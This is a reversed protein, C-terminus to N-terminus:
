PAAALARRIGLSVNGQGLKRAIDLSHADLYVNLRRGSHLEAPRHAPRKDPKPMKPM